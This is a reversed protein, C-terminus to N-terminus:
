RKPQPCAGPYAIAHNGECRVCMHILSKGGQATCGDGEKNPPNTCEKLLYKVCYGRGGKAKNTITHYRRNFCDAATKPAAAIKPAPAVFGSGAGGSKGAAGTKGGTGTAQGAGPSRAPSGRGREVIAAAQARAGDLVHELDPDSKVVVWSTRRWHMLMERIKEDFQVFVSFQDKFINTTAWLDAMSRIYQLIREAWEEGCCEKVAMYMHLMAGDWEGITSIKKWGGTPAEPLTRKTSGAVELGMLTQTEFEHGAVHKTVSRYEAERTASGYVSHNVRAFKYAPETLGLAVGVYQLQRNWGRLAAVMSVHLRPKLDAVPVGLKQLLYLHEQQGTTFNAFLNAQAKRKSTSLLMSLAENSANRVDERATQTEMRANHSEDMFAGAAGACMVTPKAEYKSLRSAGSMDDGPMGGEKMHIREGETEKSYSSGGDRREDRLCTVVEMLKRMQREMAVMSERAEERERAHKRAEERVLEQMQLRLAGGEDM